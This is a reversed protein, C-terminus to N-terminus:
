TQIARLRLSLRQRGPEVSLVEGVVQQGVMLGGQPLNMESNHILGELGDELRAFAGFRAIETITAPVVVGVPYREAATEWPNEKLRKLSLAVRGRRADLQLVMVDICDGLRLFDAPDAVRGWSLESIHALGEVGGLDIFVGFSTINTICGRLRQGPSIEQFLRQRAGPAAKAARESFVIRGRRADCEIIKLRLTKGVYTKLKAARVQESAGDPGAVLHSAPVFGCIEENEVLLGGRNYGLVHCEVIREESQLQEARLYDVARGGISGWPQSGSGSRTRSGPAPRGGDVEESEIIASWYGDDFLTPGTLSQEEGM